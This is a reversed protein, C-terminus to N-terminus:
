NNAAEGLERFTEWAPDVGPHEVAEGDITVGSGSSVSGVIAADTGRAELADAVAALADPRGTILLTGRASVSWPDLGVAECVADVDPQSPVTDSEIDIHVGSAAALEALAGKVGCETADHMASVPAADAAALADEVATTAELRAAAQQCTKETVDLMDRFLTAFLAAVERGPGGALLLGDGPRAGDPRVLQEPDGFGIATAGGVWPFDTAHYGTHGTVIDVGLRSCTEDVGGWFAAFEAETMSEPLTLTVSLHTPPVGSVAVDSLVSHVALRGAREFGLAPVVSLPDATIVLAEGAPTVVGFDIGHEPGLVTSDVTAGLNPQIQTEFFERDVKGSTDSM